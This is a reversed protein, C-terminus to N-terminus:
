RRVTTPPNPQFGSVSAIIRTCPDDPDSRDFSEGDDPEARGSVLPTSDTVFCTAGPTTATIIVSALASLPTRRGITTGLRHVQLFGAANQRFTYTSLMVNSMSSDTVDPGVVAVVRSQAKMRIWVTTQRADCREPGPRADENSSAFHWCLQRREIVGLPYGPPVAVVLHWRASASGGTAVTREVSAPGRRYRYRADSAEIYRAATEADARHIRPILAVIRARDLDRLSVDVFTSDPEIWFARWGISTGDSTEEFITVDRNGIRMPTPAGPLEAASRPTNSARIVLYTDAQAGSQRFAVITPNEPVNLSSRVAEFVLGPEANSPLFVLNPDPM